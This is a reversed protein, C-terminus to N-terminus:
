APPQEQAPEPAAAPSETENQQAEPPPMYLPGMQGCGALLPLGSLLLVTALLYSPM